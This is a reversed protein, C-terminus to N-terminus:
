YEDMPQNLKFKYFGIFEFLVVFGIFKKIPIKSNIESIALIIEKDKRNNPFTKAPSTNSVIIKKKTGYTTGSGNIISSSKTPKIWANIKAIIVNTEIESCM